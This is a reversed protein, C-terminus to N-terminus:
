WSAVVLALRDLALAGAAVLATVVLLGLRGLWRPPPDPRPYDPTAGAAVMRDYLDPYLRSKSQKKKKTVRATVVPAM